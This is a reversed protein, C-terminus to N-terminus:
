PELSSVGHPRGPGGALGPLWSLCRHGECSVAEKGACGQKAKWLGPDSVALSPQQPGGAM